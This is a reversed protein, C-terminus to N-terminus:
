LFLAQYIFDQYILGMVMTCDVFRVFADDDSSQPYTHCTNCYAICSTSFDFYFHGQNLERNIVSLCSCVVSIKDAPVKWSFLCFGTVSSEGISFLHFLDGYEDERTLM